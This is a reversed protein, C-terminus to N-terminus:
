CKEVLAFMKDDHETISEVLKLQTRCRDLNHRERHVKYYLDGDLYDTLFRVCQEFTILKGAFPLHKKEMPTLFSNTEELFGRLLNEFLDMRLTVKSLDREDEEALCTGTRVMDGFDYLSLGPMVTDLDIVCLGENTRDDFIINNIKTDNHIVRIPIQGKKVLEQLVDFIWVHEFVFEIEAKVDKARNHPDAKLTSVFAQFRKPSNHFDVITENLTPGPLDTLMKLFRGFMRAAEYAFTGSQFTDYTKGNEIFVYARWYNGESDKHYATGDYTPIVTLVRRAIDDAGDAILKDRIHDTVRTINEMVAPPNKFINHNIRQLIARVFTGDKSHTVLYTDNIHGTGWPKADVFAGGIQFSREITRIDYQM